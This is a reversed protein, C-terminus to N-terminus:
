TRKKKEMEEKRLDLVLYVVKQETPSPIPESGRDGRKEKKRKKKKEEGGGRRKRRSSLANPARQSSACPGERREKKRRRKKRWRPVLCLRSSTSEFLTSFGPRM